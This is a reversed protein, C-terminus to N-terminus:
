EGIAELAAKCKACVWPLPGGTTLNITRQNLCDHCRETAKRLRDELTVRNEKELVAVQQSNRLEDKLEAIRKAADALEKCVRAHMEPSISPPM